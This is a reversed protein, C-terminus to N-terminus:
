LRKGNHLLISKGNRLISRRIMRSEQRYPFRPESFSGYVTDRVMRDHVRCAHHMANLSKMMNIWCKDKVCHCQVNHHLFITHRNCRDHRCRRSAATLLVKVCVLLERPVVKLARKTNGLTEGTM